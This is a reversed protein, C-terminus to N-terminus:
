VFVESLGFVAVRVAENRTLSPVALLLVCVRSIVTAATLSAGTLITGPGCGGAFVGGSTKLAPAPLRDRDAVDVGTVAWHLYRQGGALPVIDSLWVVPSLKMVPSPVASPLIVKVPM